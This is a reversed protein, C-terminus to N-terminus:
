HGEEGVGAAVDLCVAVDEGVVVAGADDDIGGSADGFKKFIVGELGGMEEEGVLVEVVDIVDGGETGCAGADVSVLGVRGVDDHFFADLFHADGDFYRGIFDVFGESFVGGELDAVVVEVEGVDGAVRGVGDREVEDRLGEKEGSVSEKLATDAAGIEGAPIVILEEVGDALFEVSKGFFSGDKGTVSWLGTDAGFSFCIGKAWSELGQGRFVIIRLVKRPMRVRASVRGRAEPM